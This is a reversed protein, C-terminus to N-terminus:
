FRIKATAQIIRNIAETASTVKGFNTSTVTTNPAAFQTRNMVNLADLRLQFTWRRESLKFERQANLDIQNTHDSRVGDIFTPFVRGQFSAPQAASATVFGAKTNFWEDLTQPGKAIDSIDGNFFLNPWSILPGPQYEWTGAMQFGGLVANWIGARAFARGKGFPLEYLWTSVIRYPRGNNSERWSPQADFSNYYYDAVRTTSRTYGFSATLGKSMRRQVTIQLDDSRAEGDSSNTQSLGAMHPFPLLLQSKAITRSTFFGLTSMAQYVLPNSQALGAFNGIYFPNTVNSTLNSSITNNRVNGTAWYQAPLSNLNKTIYVKDSYTGAYAIEVATSSGLQHQVGVRWRQEHARNNQFPDFSFSRGAVMMLGLASNTPEDFRTGNARVPFPDSMPSIGNRPDGALWTVGFDNTLNTSTTQSFGLQPIGKTFANITDYYVGYGARLVTKPRIQYAVAFRPELMFQNRDMKRSLGNAGPYLSGGLVKFASASLEPIPAAGYAAQAAATIPLTPNPDFEGIVRNYRETEGLEFEARLGANITLRPTLQWNEQVYWGYYPSHVARSVGPTGITMSSPTGLMFAAWSLGIDGAPTFTDDNRRTYANNFAFAGSLNGRVDVNQWYQRVDVGARITHKGRVHTASLNTAWVPKKTVAPAPASLSLASGHMAYGTFEMQPLMHLNGANADLYAPLGVDSAKYEFPKKLASGAWTRDFSTSLNLLTRPSVTYALSVNAVHIHWDKGTNELGKATSYTWDEMYESLAGHNWSGFLHLNPSINYDIRTTQVMYNWDMTMRNALYNNLPEKTPDIPENNPVPLLSAYNKYAPNAIRSLPIINGPFPARIYHTARAADPQVTLPDYIQYRSADVKLLQSFDGQRNAMTPITTNIAGTPFSAPKADILGALNFFFFLKNRGNYLKPIIVPGGVAGSYTNSRGNSQRGGSLLQQVLTDNGAAKANDLQQFYARKVYFPTGNWKSQWHEDSLAGHLENTGPKTTISVTLGTAQASAADFNSTEIKIEQVADTSPLFAPSGGRSNLAGDLSYEPAGVKAGIWFDSAGAFCYLCNYKNVGSAQVGPTLRGLLMPNDGQLPLDSVARNDQLAGSSVTSVDLLPTEGKVEVSETLAGVALPMDVLLRTGIPLIIGERISKKFGASEVEVVYTGSILLNAQYYGVENSAVKTVVNTEANTVAVTAGAIAAGQSDLIRGYITGRTEVSQASLVAVSVLIAGLTAICKIRM